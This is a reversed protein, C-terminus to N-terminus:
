IGPIYTHLKTFLRGDLRVYVRIDGVTIMHFPYFPSLSERSPRWVLTPSLSYTGERVLLTGLPDELQLRRGAVLEEVTRENLATLISSGEKPLAVAQQYDGFLADVAVAATVTKEPNILPVIYYYSDIRDLRQVLSPRGPEAGGLASEWGERDYLGYTRLGAVASRVADEPNLLTEGDFRKVQAESRGPYEPPPDPDCVAVNKGNWLSGYVNGTMYNSKWTSYAIHENVIGRNGGTGCGDGGSHPPPAPPPPVPPAYFSPVPPWPNNVEFATIGYTNDTSSSPAASADYGRVVIWHNGGQVLAIPAVQYHHITWILKRSLADETNLAYLAFWGGFVPPRRDNMLWQLGDPPNYWSSLESTHNRCDTYLTDQNQIGAGISDLVMQACAAGCYIDTNQQHYPVNLNEHVAMHKRRM